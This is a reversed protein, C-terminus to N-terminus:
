KDQDRWLRAMSMAARLERSKAQQQRAVSLAGEFSGEAKAADLEPSRLAIKGSAISDGGRVM